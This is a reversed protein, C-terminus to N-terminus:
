QSIALAAVSDFVKRSLLSILTESESPFFTVIRTCVRVQSLFGPRTTFTVNVLRYYVMSNGPGLSSVQPTEVCSRLRHRAQVSIKAFNRWAQKKGTGYRCRVGSLDPPNFIDIRFNLNEHGRCVSVYQSQAATM